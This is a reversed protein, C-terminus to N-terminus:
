MSIFRTISRFNTMTNTVRYGNIASNDVCRGIEADTQKLRRFIELPLDTTTVPKANDRTQTIVCRTRRQAIQDADAMLRRLFFNAHDTITSGGSM